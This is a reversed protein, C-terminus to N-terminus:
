VEDDKKLCRTESSKDADLRSSSITVDSVFCKKNTTKWSNEYKWSSSNALNNKTEVDQNKNNNNKNEFSLHACCDSEGAGTSYDNFGGSTDGLVRRLSESIMKGKEACALIRANGLNRSLDDAHVNEVGPVHSFVCRVNPFADRDRAALKNLRHSRSSYGREYTAKATVSDTGIHLVRESTLDLQSLLWQKALFIALTETLVSEQLQAGYEAVVSSSWPEGHAFTKGTRKDLAVLGFGTACADTLMLIDPDAHQPVLRPANRLATSTWSDLDALASPWVNAPENWRRHDAAQMERCLNSAFRLLNFHGAVNCEIVQMAYFLLGLHGAFGKNTWGARLSWSLDIKALVKPTLSVEKTAFNFHVGCWDLEASILADPESINENFTIRASKSRAALKKMDHVIHERSEAVFIINDIYTALGASRRPFSVLHETCGVAAAVMHRMGTPGVCLRARVVSGDPMPLLAAYYNRVREGLPFQAYYGSIDCQAAVAGLHVLACREPLSLFAVPPPPPLLDNIEKPHQLFRDCRKTHDPTTFCRITALPVEGDPMIEFYGSDLLAPTHNPNTRSLILNRVDFLSPMHPAYAEPNTLIFIAYLVLDRTKADLTPLSLLKWLDIRDDFYKIKPAYDAASAVLATRQASAATSNALIDNLRPVIHIPSEDVVVTTTTTTPSTVIEELRKSASM